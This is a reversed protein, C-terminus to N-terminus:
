MSVMVSDCVEQVASVVDEVDEDTLKASLPLSLTRRGIGEAVPYAGPRYGFENRYYSHLHVPTYHVGTGIKRETLSKLVEDRSLGAHDAVLISYLHRAHVVGAPVPAPLQVPLRAFRSDYYQWIENRRHLGSEVARLQHIGLAAQVDTMNYKFGPAVVDYHQYGSSSFRRYADKSMGHLGLTRMRDAWETNRTTAMGGEVTTVNKTVYFSFCTIDAINGVKKGRCWGEICHAADEIVFLGRRKAIDLIADMNCPRGGFHVPLLVKTRPTIAREIRSEDINFTDPHVDVFVPRAGAHIVANATAAFTMPTTIVEDGPRVGLTLLALHLAATCSNTAVAYPAGTYEKLLSEFRAVRPGTGLWGSRLTAEVEDIEAEGIKPSGFVLFQERSRSGFGPLTNTAKM